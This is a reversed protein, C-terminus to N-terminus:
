VVLSQRWWNDSLRPNGQTMEGINWRRLKTEQEPRSRWDIPQVAPGQITITEFSLKHAPQLLPQNANTKDFSSSAIAAARGWCSSEHGCETPVRGDDTAAECCAQRWWHDVGNHCNVSLIVTFSNFSTSLTTLRQCYIVTYWVWNHLSSQTFENVLLTSIHSNTSLWSRPSRARRGSGRGGWWRSCIGWSPFGGTVLLCCLM